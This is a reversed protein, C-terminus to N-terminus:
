APGIRGRARDPEAALAGAEDETEQELNSRRRVRGERVGGEEPASAAEAGASGTSGQQDPVAGANLDIEPDVEATGFRLSANDLGLQIKKAEARLQALAKRPKAKKDLLVVGLKDATMGLAASVPERKSLMLLPKMQAAAMIDDPTPGDKKGTAM